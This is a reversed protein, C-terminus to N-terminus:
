KVLELRYGAGRLTAIRVGSDCEALVLRLRSVLKQVNNDANERTSRPLLEAIADRSTPSNHHSALLLLLSRETPTAKLPVDSCTVYLANGDITLKGFTVTNDCSAGARRAIARTRAVLELNSFPKVLYDDAGADLCEIKDELNSKGSIVVIPTCDHRSRLEQILILGDVDPLVLDIVFVDYGTEALKARFESGTTVADVDIRELSLQTKILYKQIENDEVVLVKM